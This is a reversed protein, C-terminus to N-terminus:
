YAKEMQRASITLEFGSIYKKLHMASLLVKKFLLSASPPQLCLAQVGMFWMIM